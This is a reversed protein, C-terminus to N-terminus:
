RRCARVLKTIDTPEFRMIPGQMNAIVETGSLECAEAPDLSIMDDINKVMVPTDAPTNTLAGPVSTLLIWVLLASIFRSLM